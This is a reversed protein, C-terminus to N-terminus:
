EEDSDTEINTEKLINKLIKKLSHNNYYDHLAECNINYINNKFFLFPVFGGTILFIFDNYDFSDDDYIKQCTFKYNNKTDQVNKIYDFVIKFDIM